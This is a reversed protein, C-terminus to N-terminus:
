IGNPWDGEDYGNNYGGDMPHSQVHKRKPQTLSRQFSWKLLDDRYKAAKGEFYKTLDNEEKAAGIAALSWKFFQEGAPVIVDVSTSTASLSLDAAQPVYVLYYVQGTTPTPYLRTNGNIMAYYRSEGASVSAANREQVALPHLEVRRGGASLEYDVGLEAMFDAPEAYDQVGTSTITQESEFVRAGGEVIAAHFESYVSSFEDQWEADSLLSSNVQDCARRGKLILQAITFSRAM